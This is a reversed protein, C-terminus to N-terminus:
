IGFLALFHGNNGELRDGWGHGDIHFVVFKTKCGVVNTLNHPVYSKFVFFITLLLLLIIIKKRKNTIM